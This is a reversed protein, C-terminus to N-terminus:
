TPSKYYILAKAMGTPISFQVGVRERGADVAGTEILGGSETFTIKTYMKKHRMTISTSKNSGPSNLENDTKVITIKVCSSHISVKGHQGRTDIYLKWKGNEWYPAHTNIKKMSENFLAVTHEHTYRSLIRDLESMDNRKANNLAKANLATTNLTKTNLAAKLGPFGDLSKLM